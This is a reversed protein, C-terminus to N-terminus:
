ANAHKMTQELTTTFDGFLTKSVTSGVRQFADNVNDVFAQCENVANSAYVQKLCLSWDKIKLKLM